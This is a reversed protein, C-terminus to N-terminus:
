KGRPFLDVSRLSEELSMDGFAFRMLVYNVGAEVAQRAIADRVTRPSGAIAQGSAVV